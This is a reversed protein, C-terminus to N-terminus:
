WSWVALCDVGEMRIIARYEYVVHRLSDNRLLTLVDRDTAESFQVGMKCLEM